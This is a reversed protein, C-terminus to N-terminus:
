ARVQHPQSNKTADAGTLPGSPGLGMVDDRNYLHYYYARKDMLEQHTGHEIIGGETMVYIVDADQVTTLRHAITITTRGLALKELSSQVILESQNDLASTAEDLILIPPNKLFVRAISLRQKQGGSLKVGREGIYTDYGNELGLIFDHAGALKAAAVIEEESASQKGYRINERVNGSFLYVDQQVIGINNRLSKIAVDRIDHGDVLISGATVDYFRPILNCITSKGAGSPGVFAIKQGKKVELSVKDLVKNDHGPYAFSVHDFTINGETKKIIAANEKDYIDSETAMVEHFREIGTMGKQFQETFEVIRKITAFLLNVYMIFVLLDGPDMSGIMMLYGGGVLVVLYMLGDFTKTITQFGAMARYFHRKIFLFHQNDAEFKQKEVSENAFSKVVRIGLLSDEINANLHGVQQRQEQQARRMKHRFRTASWFMLPILAFLILTLPLQISGLVILSVVLKIFGIFYEEPCHHAFETIDFLDNTLRSMLQGVKNENYYADPLSQLHNFIDSRMDTEIKAGMMHGVNTMYYGAAVEIIKMLTYIIALQTVFSLTVQQIPDQARNTLQRLLIPLGMEAVTTLAACALDLYLTAQYKKFYPFVISILEKSSKQEM